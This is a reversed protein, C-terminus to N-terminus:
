ASPLGHFRFTAGMFCRCVEFGLSWVQGQPDLYGIIMYEGLVQVVVVM